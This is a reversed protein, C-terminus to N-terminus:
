MRSLLIQSLHRLHFLFFAFFVASVCILVVLLTRAFDLSSYDTGNGDVGVDLTSPRAVNILLTVTFTLISWSTWISPVSFLDWVSWFLFDLQDVAEIHENNTPYASFYIILLTPSILGIVAQLLSCCCFFWFSTTAAKFLM